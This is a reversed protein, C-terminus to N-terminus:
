NFFYKTPLKHEVNMFLFKSLDTTTLLCSHSSRPRSGHKDSLFHQLVRLVRLVGGKDTGLHTCSRPLLSRPLLLGIALSTPRTCSSPLLLAFVKRIVHVSLGVGVVLVFADVEVWM